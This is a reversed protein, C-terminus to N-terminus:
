TNATDMYVLFVTDYLFMLCVNQEPASFLNKKRSSFCIHYCLGLLVKEDVLLAVNVFTTVEIMCIKVLIGGFALDRRPLFM